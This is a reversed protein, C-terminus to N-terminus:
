SQNNNTIITGNWFILKRYRVTSNHEEGDKYIIDLGFGYDELLANADNWIQDSLEDDEWLGWIKDDPGRFGYGYDKPLVYAVRSDTADSIRPNRNIYHWFNKLAELHEEELIGYTSVKPYNLVVVYKAGSQYALVLDSYLEQGSEIYPPDYYTWTIIVGWEKNHAEAAGRCLAVNLLSSHNWGFECLVVDFRAKYDFWYLAYDATFLPFGGLIPYYDTWHKLNEDLLEVYKNAADTYNDAEKVLMSPDCDIQRGGPEDYIYLGLFRDGWRQRADECWRTQNFKETPHVYVMLHLGSEYVYQCVEDLKTVNLTIGISGVVFLNTYAKVEDVLRKIDEVGDYAVDVGFFFDLELPDKLLNMRLFVLFFLLSVLFVVLIARYNM